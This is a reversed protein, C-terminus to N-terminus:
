KETLKNLYHIFTNYATVINKGTEEAARGTFDRLTANRLMNEAENTLIGRLVNRWQGCRENKSDEPGINALWEKFPQDVLFYVRSIRKAAYQDKDINRIECIDRLFKGYVSGVAKGTLEVEKNIRYVWGGDANDTVVIEDIHLTDCIEDAPVWSTANGDDKMSVAQLSVSSGAVADGIRDLWEMIGPKHNRSGDSLERLTLLGFSRWMSKEPKHKRPTYSDKNEGSRNYQWVTMPETFANKHDIDPLKVVSVATEKDCDLDPNVYIARSWRTYLQAINDIFTDSFSNEINETGSYEWCPKQPNKPSQNDGVLACNLMLTEFVSRGEIYIGGLDFLWGKSAKYKKTGFITKDSLGMYGQLSIIWRALQAETLVSKNNGKPSFAAKPSFIAIKNNSESILRNINKGSIEGPSKGGLKETGIDQETVQFFPYRGDFLFFRGRWQELYKFVTDPFKKADWVERWINMSEENFDDEDDDDPSFIRPNGEADYRSFVTHLVALLVRLVAFDQTKMDGALTKYESAHKFVDTMSVHENHGKEDAIVSIWPEDLLNFRGM